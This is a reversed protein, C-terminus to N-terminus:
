PLEVLSHQNLGCGAGSVFFFRRRSILALRLVFGISEGPVLDTCDGFTTIAKVIDRDAPDFRASSKRIDSSKTIVLEVSASM